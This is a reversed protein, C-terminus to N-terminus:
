QKSCASRNYINKLTICIEFKLSRFLQTHAQISYREDDDNTFYILELSVGGWIGRVVEPNLIFGYIPVPKIENLYAEYSNDEKQSKRMSFLTPKGIKAQKSWESDGSPGLYHSIKISEM